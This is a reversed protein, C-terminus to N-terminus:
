GGYLTRRRCGVFVDIYRGTVEQVDIYFSEDWFLALGGSPGNSDFGVFGGM